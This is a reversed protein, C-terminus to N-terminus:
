LRQIRNQKNDENEQVVVEANERILRTLEDDGEVRLKVEMTGDQSGSQTAGTPRPQMASAGAAFTTDLMSSLRDLPVVAESEGAEGIRAITDDLAIGGTALEPIDYGPGDGLNLLQGESLFDGGGVGVSGGGLESPLGVSVRPVDIDHSPVEVNPLHIADPMIDNFADIADQAADEFVGMLEDGLSGIEDAIDGPLGTFSDVIADAIDGAANRFDSVTSAISDAAGSVPETIHDGIGNWTTDVFSDVSNFVSRVTSEVGNVANDVSNEIGSAANDVTNEIGNWINTVNRDVTNFTSSVTRRVTNVGSSVTNDIASVTNDITREIGNWIRTTFGAITNFTSRIFQKVGNLVSRTTQNIANWSGTVIREITQFTGRIFSVINNFITQLTNYFVNRLFNLIANFTRPVISGGILFNYIGRFVDAILGFVLDLVGRLGELFAGGIFDVIRNFTRQTFNWIIDMAGDWDGRILALIVRITSLIADLATGITLEIFGWVAETIAMIQEGHRNWFTEIHGAITQIHSNIADLTRAVESFMQEFHLEYIRLLEEALPILLREVTFSVVGRIASMAGAFTNELSDVADGLASAENDTLTFLQQVRNMVSRTFDRIGGLNNEWAYWLGAVAAATGAIAIGVPGTLVAAVSGLAPLVTGTIVPAIAALATVLGTIATGAFLAVGAMGNTAENLDAFAEVAPLIATNVIELIVPLLQNGMVIAVNNLRNKLLQMQSNFTDTQANYEEQLSSAEAYSENSRELAQRTGDLNQSLGALAQRSTTSLTTRLADAEEGGEQMAEAMTLLLENPNEERMTRFEEETMGLASAFDSVNSPNMVEQSLRRLRTGARQSSESVENLAASMGAIQRQNLGLQSMSGSARLMADVIEQSSTAFNNSLSNISSGLNEMESVPTNTLEALRSLSEGAEQANLETATAMMATTETFERINEPGEIGFRGAQAALNALESQAMPINEAMQRIDENLADATAESTVKEVEVMASEFDAAAQTAVALGGVGIGAMAAGAAAAATRMGSLSGQVDNIDESANDEASITIEMENGGSPTFSM